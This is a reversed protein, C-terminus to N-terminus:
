DMTMMTPFVPCPAPSTVLLEVDLYAPLLFLTSSHIVYEFGAELSM